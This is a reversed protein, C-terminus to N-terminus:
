GAVPRFVGLCAIRGHLFEFVAATATPFGQDLAAREEVGAAVCAQILNLALMGIGPNHAIVLITDADEREAVTQIVDAPANYLESVAQMRVDPLSTAVADFTQRARLAPSVLALEPILGAAALARGVSAAATLGLETLARDIDAGSTAQPETKAHRLLILRKM